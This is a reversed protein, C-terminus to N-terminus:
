DLDIDHHDSPKKKTDASPQNSNNVNSSHQSSATHSASTPLATTAGTVQQMMSDIMPRLMQGLPRFLEMKQFITSFLFASMKSIQM